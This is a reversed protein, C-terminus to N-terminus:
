RRKFVWEPPALRNLADVLTPTLINLGVQYSANTWAFGFPSSASPSAGINGYEAQVNGTRQEVDFKEPISGGQQVANQTITYLWRYALRRAINDYGYDVLGQWLLMQHPAWGYPYDWQCAPRADNLPGRSVLASSAIGGPVELLPLVGQLVRRAQEKTAAGAWLPYFTTASIYRTQKGHVFDYDFYMGLEANWLYRDILERRRAAREKWSDAKATSGDNLRLTGEFETALAAAVDSEIKYLLSNLDVTVLDACCGILRYTSDHGSERMARDHVFYADLARDELQRSRYLERFLELTMGRRLAHPALYADFHGREAELPMGTGADFYRSLGTETRRDLNMWVRHYEGIAADIVDAFWAKNEATRPLRGYCALAMSTLFPPQSRTLYYTRNANLIAGYHRIEYVFNDVIARALDIRGDKLLGLLIFYSDWGYMENFRGGPVVFPRGDSGRPSSDALGLALIGNTGNLGRIFEPTVVEPLVVMRLNWEPHSEALHGFYRASEPDDRPVYIYRVDDHSPTKEDELVAPLGQADITRTLGDWFEERIHRSIRQVPKEFLRDADLEATAVEGENMM